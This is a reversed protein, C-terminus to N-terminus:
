SPKTTRTTPPNGQQRRGKFPGIDRDGCGQLCSWTFVMASLSERGTSTWPHPGCHYGDGSNQSLRQGPGGYASARCSGGSDATTPLSVRSPTAGRRHAFPRASSASQSLPLNPSPKRWVAARGPGNYINQISNKVTLMSSWTVSKRQRERVTYIDNLWCRCSM